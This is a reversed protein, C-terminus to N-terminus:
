GFLAFWVLAATGSAGAALSLIAHIDLPASRGLDAPGAAPFRPADLRPIDSANGAPETKQVTLPLARPTLTVARPAPRQKHFITCATVIDRAPDHIERVVRVATIAPRRYLDRAIELAEGRDPSVYDIMWRGAELVQVEFHTQRATEPM